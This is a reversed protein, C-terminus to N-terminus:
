FIPLGSATSAPVARRSDWHEVIAGAELRFLDYFGYSKTGLKGESLTFVFNGDAIVHHVKTYSVSDKAVYDLFAAAGSGSAARHEVFSSGLLLNAAAHEGGILVKEIFALVQARNPETNGATLTMAGASDSAQNSDSDWHEMLKGDKLRFMDFIVGTGSYKGQVVALDCDALTRLRQYSFGGSTVYSGMISKFTAVGSMAVPNHQLYPDAWYQDIAAVKKEVFLGDLAAAVTARNKATLAPDCQGTAGAAGAGTGAAAGSSSAGGNGGGNAGATFSATGASPGAGQAHAQGANGDQGAGSPSSGGSTSGASTSGAGSPATGGAGAGDAGKWATNPETGSCGFGCGLLLAHLLLSRM